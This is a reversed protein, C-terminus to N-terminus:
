SSRRTATSAQKLGEVELRLYRRNRDESRKAVVRGLMGGFKLSLSARSGQPTPEVCHSAVVHLLGPIGTTWIFGRNPTLTQVTWVTPLVGPQRMLVRSGVALPGTGFLRASRVSQTWEHWHEVDAMVAWVSEPAVPIEISVNLRTASETM